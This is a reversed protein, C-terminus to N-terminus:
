FSFYAYVLGLLITLCFFISIYIFFTADLLLLKNQAFSLTIGANFFIVAIFLFAVAINAIKHHKKKWGKDKITDFFILFTIPLFIAASATIINFDNTIGKPYTLIYVLGIVFIATLELILYTIFNNIIRIHRKK